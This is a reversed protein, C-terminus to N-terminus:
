LGPAGSSHDPAGGSGVRGSGVINPLRPTTLGVNSHSPVVIDWREDADIHELGDSLYLTVQLVLEM